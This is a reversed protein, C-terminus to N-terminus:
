RRPPKGGDVITFIHFAQREVHCLFEESPDKVGREGGREREAEESPGM